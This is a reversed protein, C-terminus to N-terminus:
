GYFITATVSAGLGIFIGNECLIGEGPVRVVLPVVNYTDFEAYIKTYMDLTGSATGSTISTVTFTNQTVNSVDYVADRMTTGPAIDLFVRDGDMLGNDGITITALTGTRSWTGSKKITPDAIVTNRTSVTTSTVTIGKLRARYDVAVVSEKALYSKVDYQM